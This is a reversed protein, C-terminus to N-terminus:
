LPLTLTTHKGARRVKIPFDVESKTIMMIQASSFHLAHGFPLHMSPRCYVLKNTKM